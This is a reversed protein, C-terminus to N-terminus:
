LGEPQTANAPLEHPDGHGGADYHDAAPWPALALLLRSQELARVAHHEGPELLVLTGEGCTTTSGAATLDISGLVVLVVACDRVRHERLEEEPALDIVVGRVEPTSFLVRPGAKESEHPAKLNWVQM